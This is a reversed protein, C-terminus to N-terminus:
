EGVYLGHQRIYEAVEPLVCDEWSEGAAIARRIQTSSIPTLPMEIQSARILEIRETPLIAALAEFDPQPSDARHVVLPVAMQCVEKARHWRPLDALSDAGMPFFLEAEPLEEGIAELTDVTYSIGGRELELKSVQFEERTKAVIELMALRHEDAARPGQPKLPQSAAPVFWVTDLQAQEWCCNALVTHGRHVPDFSGGFIGLRM